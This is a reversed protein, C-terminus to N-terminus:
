EAHHKLDALAEEPKCYECAVKDGDKVQRVGDLVIRDNKSVGSKVIFIDDQEDQIAIETQKVVGDAGVVFVFRKNLVDITARQPIVLAGNLTRHILVNGTQGHRLLRDPNPFDARFAINGTENNFKAEIAGIVGHYPFKRGDALVLEIQRSEQERGGAMYELYRSEPVNFYVWMVTNDSLTTLVDEKKVFSGQQQHFRDIIGDFPAKIQTFALEAEALTLRAKAENLEAMKLAVEQESVIKQQALKVTNDYQLQASQLKAQEAALRAKYLTPVVVFLLDGAKVEQGERVKIEELYGEQLSRVEINRRSHIQGVYQQTITVDMQLPSTVVITHHEHHSHSGHHPHCAPLSIIITALM